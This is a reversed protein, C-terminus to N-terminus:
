KKKRTIKYAISLAEKLISKKVKGLDAYTAGQRGWSGPVPYFINEAYSCFVSQEASPLKIMARNDKEHLTTFIKNRTRFSALHFHPQEGTEPFSLAMQRFTEMSVM